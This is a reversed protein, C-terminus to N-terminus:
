DGKVRFVLYVVTFAALIVVVTSWFATRKVGRATARLLNRVM